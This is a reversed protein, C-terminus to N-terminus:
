RRVAVYAARVNSDGGEVTTFRLRLVDTARVDTMPFEVSRWGFPQGPDVTSTGLSAGNCVVDVRLRTSVGTNAYFWARASSTPGSSIAGVGVETVRGVGGSWIYDSSSVPTPQTVTDDIAQAATGVGNVVWPRVDDVPRMVSVQPVAGAPDVTEYSGSEDAIRLSDYFMVRQDTTSRGPNSQWDWKYIGFKLYVPRGDAHKNKGSVSFVEDADRWIKIFGDSEPSWRVHLVWDTWRETSYSGLPTHQAHNEWHQSIQWQGDRTIIALPPSGGTDAVQHWQTLSEASRDPVWSEPLHISFGIWQEAREPATPSPKPQSIESRKSSSVVADTRNLEFRAAYQGSRVRDSVITASRDCCWQRNWGPPAAGPLTRDAENEWDLVRLSM